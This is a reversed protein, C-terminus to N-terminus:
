RNWGGPQECVFITCWDIDPLVDFMVGLALALFFTGALATLVGGLIPHGHNRAAHFFAVYSVLYMWGCALLAGIIIAFQTGTYPILPETM